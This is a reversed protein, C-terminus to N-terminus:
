RRLLSNALIAVGVLLLILPWTIAISTVGSLGIIMLIGAWIVRGTVPRAYEPSVTRVIVELLVLVGAGFFIWNWPGAEGVQPLYGLTEAMFVLGAWILVAAWIASSLPSSRIKEEYYTPKEAKESEKEAEKEQEKEREKEEEWSRRPPEPPRETPPLEESM